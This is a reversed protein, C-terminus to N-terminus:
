TCCGKIIQSSYVISNTICELIGTLPSAQKLIVIFKDLAKLISSMHASSMLKATEKGNDKKVAHRILRIFEPGAKSVKETVIQMVVKGVLELYWLGSLLLDKVITEKEDILQKAFM